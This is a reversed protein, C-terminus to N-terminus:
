PAVVFCLSLSAFSRPDDRVMGGPAQYDIPEHDLLWEHRLALVVRDLIAYSVGLSATGSWTQAGSRSIETVLSPAAVEYAEGIAAEFRLGWRGASGFVRAAYHARSVGSGALAGSQGTDFRPEAVIGIPGWGASVLPGWWVAGDASRAASGGVAYWFPTRPAAPAARPASTGMTATLLV